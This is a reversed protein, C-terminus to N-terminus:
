ADRSDAPQIAGDDTLISASLQSAIQGFNPWECTCVWIALSFRIQKQLADGIPSHANVM